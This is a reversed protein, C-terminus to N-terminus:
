QRLQQGAWCNVRSRHKKVTRQDGKLFQIINGNGKRSEKGQCKERNKLNSPIVTSPFLLDSEELFSTPLIINLDEQGKGLPGFLIRIGGTAARIMMETQRKFAKYSVTVEPFFTSTKMAHYQRYVLHFKGENIYKFFFGVCYNEM